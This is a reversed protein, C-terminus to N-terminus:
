PKKGYKTLLDDNSVGNQAGKNLLLDIEPKSFYAAGGETNLIRMMSDRYQTELRNLNRLLQDDTQGLELSGLSAQLAELEQVAVQGLAGGTPSEDRMRQLRDFGINAKITTTLEDLNKAPTGGVDRLMNGVFGTTWFPTDKAIRKAETIDSLVTSGSQAQAAKTAGESFTVQQAALDAPGGKVPRMQYAAAGNEDVGQFLEFGAPISGFQAAKGKGAQQYAAFKPDIKSLEYERMAATTNDKPAALSASYAAMEKQRAFDKLSREEALMQSYADSGKLEGTEVMAALRLSEPTGITRLYDVTKNKARGATRQQQITQLNAALSPDPTLRMSNFANAMVAAVDRFDRKEKERPAAPTLMTPLM